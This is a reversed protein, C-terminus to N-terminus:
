RSGNPSEGPQAQRILRRLGTLEGILHDIGAATLLVRAEHAGKCCTAVLRVKDPVDDNYELDIHAM